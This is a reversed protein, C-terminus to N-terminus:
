FIGEEIWKLPEDKFIDMILLSKEEKSNGIALSRGEIILRVLDRDEKAFPFILGKKENPWYVSLFIKDLYKFWQTLVNAKNLAGKGIDFVKKPVIALARRLGDELVAQGYQVEDVLKANKESM